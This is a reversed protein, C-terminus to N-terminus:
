TAAPAWAIQMPPASMSRDAARAPSTSVTAAWARFTRPTTLAATPQVADSRIPALEQDATSAHMLGQAARSTRGLLHPGMYSMRGWTNASMM